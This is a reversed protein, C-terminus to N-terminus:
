LAAPRDSTETLVVLLGSSPQWPYAQSLVTPPLLERREQFLPVHAPPQLRRQFRPRRHVRSQLLSRDICFPDSQLAELIHVKYAESVNPPRALWKTAARDNLDASEFRSLLRKIPSFVGLSCGWTAEAVAVTTQHHQRM